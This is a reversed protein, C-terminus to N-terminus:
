RREIKLSSLAVSSVIMAIGALTPLPLTEGFFLVGFAVAYIVGIYNISAVKSAAEAQYGKTLYLQAVQTLVGVVLIKPWDWGTPSVWSHAAFPFVLVSGTISFYFMVVWEHDSHRLSRVTNYAFASFIAGLVGIGAAFLSVRTDFGQIIYVGLFGLISCLWHRPTVQEGFFLGSFLITLIPSLYQITVATALPLEHLSYFFCTLAATGAMGRLLLLKRNKGLVPIKHWKLYSFNLFLCIFARWFVVQEFPLHHLSKVALSVIAFCSVSFLLFRSGLSM